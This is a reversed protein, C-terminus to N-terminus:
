QLRETLRAEERAKRELLGLMMRALMLFLVTLGLLLVLELTVPLFGYIAGRPLTLQRMADMGLALPILSAAVALWYPFVKIPYYLGSLLYIPEQALSAWHWAERSSFLFVSAFAMGMGYLAALTLLFVGFLLAWQQVQFAVNFMWSGLVLIVLARVGSSVMGGLAMGLLIGMLPAPSLIFLPLNGSQKEWFLQTAMSWLVNLWFATMAGGLIVFGIYDEPANLARYVFVYAAVALLPLAIDILLWGRERTLGILRPYARGVVAQLFLRVGQHRSLAPSLSARPFAMGTYGPNCM